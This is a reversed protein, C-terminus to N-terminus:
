NIGFSVTESSYSIYIAAIFREAIEGDTINIKVSRLKANMKYRRNWLRFYQYLVSLIKKKEFLVFNPIKFISFLRKLVFHKDLYIFIM